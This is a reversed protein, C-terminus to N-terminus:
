DEGASKLRLRFDRGTMINESVIRPAGDEPLVIRMPCADLIDRQVDIGPMVWILEMGRTTLRFAGVHTVYVVTKGQKLAEVGNFTIEDM